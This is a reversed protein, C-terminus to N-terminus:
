SKLCSFRLNVSICQNSTPMVKITSFKSSDTARFKFWCYRNWDHFNVIFQKPNKYHIQFRLKEGFLVLTAKSINAAVYAWLCLTIKKKIKKLGDAKM